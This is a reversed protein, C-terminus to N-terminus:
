CPGIIRIPRRTSFAEVERPWQTVDFKAPVHMLTLADTTPMERGPAALTAYKM